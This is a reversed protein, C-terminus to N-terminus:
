RDIMMWVFHDSIVISIFIILPGSQEFTTAIDAHIPHNHSHSGHNRVSLVNTTSSRLIRNKAASRLPLPLGLSSSSHQPKILAATYYASAQQQHHYRCCTTFKSLPKYLLLRITM